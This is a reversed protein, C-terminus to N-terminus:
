IPLLHSFINIKYLIQRVDIITVNKNNININGLIGKRDTVFNDVCDNDEIIDIIENVEFGILQDNEKVVIVSSNDNSDSQDNQIELLNNLNFIPMVQERYKVVKLEGATKINKRNIEEIRYVYNLPLGYISKQNIKMLLYNTRNEIKDIKLLKESISKQKLFSIGAFEALKKIDLILGITGDGLFTAGLYIGHQNFFNPISKLVIEESDLINDIPIAFSIEDSHILIIDIYNNNSNVENKLNLLKDLEILPYIKDNRRLIKQNYIYQIEKYFVDKDMQIVFDIFAEPIALIKGKIEIILSNIITVSKPIPLKLTFETGKNLVSDIALKGGIAEVSTKVMDMGVGRGSIDTIKSATSFGPAFIIALIENESMENLETATYLGKELAKAKIKIPDIGKGDDKISLFFSNSDEFCRVTITGTPLKQLKKREEPLEIGHDVSNRILHIVCHSCVEALSNAIRINEGEFHLRINKNLEKSLDRVIRNLPKFITATPMKSLESIKNHISINLKSIEEFLEKLLYIEKNEKLLNELKYIVKTIMNKIVTFEGSYNALENLLYIPVTINDKVKIEIPTAKNEEKILKVEDKGIEINKEDYNLDLLIEELKFQKLKKQPICLVLEKIRDFGKFILEYMSDSIQLSKKKILLFLDEYKHVYKTIINSNLCGSSGKLTHVGRAIANIFEENGRDSDLLLLKEEIESLIELAEKYFIKEIEANELIFSVREESKKKIIESLREIITPKDYFGSIKLDLADLAMQRSIYSSIIIFAVKDDFELSAKRLELGNMTPMMYDCIILVLEDVNKQYLELGEQVSHALLPVFGTRKIIDKGINLIEQEDDIWLIKLDSKNM